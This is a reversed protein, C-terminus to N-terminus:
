TGGRTRTEGEVNRPIERNTYITILKLQFLSLSISFLIWGTWEQELLEAKELLAAKEEAISHERGKTAEFEAKVGSIIGEFEAKQAVLAEELEQKAKM